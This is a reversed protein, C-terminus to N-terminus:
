PISALTPVAYKASNGTGFTGTGGAAVGANAITLTLTAGGKLAATVTTSNGITGTQATKAIAATSSATIGATALTTSNNVLGAIAAAITTTTDAAAVSGPGVTVGPSALAPFNPNIFTVTYTDGATITGGATISAIANAATGSQDMRLALGNVSAILGALMDGLKARKAVPLCRNLADQLPYSGYSAM